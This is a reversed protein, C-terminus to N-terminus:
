GELNIGEAAINYARQRRMVKVIVLIGLVEMLIQVAFAYHLVTFFPDWFTYYSLLMEMIAQIAVWFLILLGLQKGHPVEKHCAWYAFFMAIAMSLLWGISLELWQNLPNPFLFGFMFIVATLNALWNLLPIYILPFYKKM